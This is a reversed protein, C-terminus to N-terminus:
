IGLSTPVIISCLHFIKKQPKTMEQVLIKKDFVKAQLQRTIMLAQEVTFEQNLAKRLEIFVTLLLFTLLLYGRITAESHCRIPLMDLDDKAFGFVQEVSQRMYYASLVEQTPIQKSSVLMFIGAKAFVHADKAEDRDKINEPLMRETVLKDIDKAKKTPDLIAYVYGERGYVDTKIAKIFLSRKGSMSSNGLCELDKVHNQIINTYIKRSSPLRMLFDINEEYLTVINSESCYGADLLAFSNKLGLLKLETLTTKLTSVDAINGPVHRYFLPKQKDPDVVLHFRFQTEIGGESYGWANFSSQIQNPLSSADIIINKNGGIEQEHQLHKSFFDRQLQEDGLISLLRSIHQSSLCHTPHLTKLINGNLWIESNYMPGPHCLRYAMLSMLEPHAKFVTELPSYISSKKVWEQILYGNGFDQILNEQNKQSPKRHPNKRTGKPVIDGKENVMGVYETKSRSQKKVPDWASTIKYAYIKGSKTTKHRIFSMITSM